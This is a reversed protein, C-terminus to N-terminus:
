GTGKLHIAKEIGSSFEKECGGRRRSGGPPHDRGNKNQDIFVLDRPGSESCWVGTGFFILCNSSAPLGQRAEWKRARKGLRAFDVKAGSDRSVRIHRMQCLGLGLSDMRIISPVRPVFGVKNLGAGYARFVTELCKHKSRFRPCPMRTPPRGKGRPLASRM